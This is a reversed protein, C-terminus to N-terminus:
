DTQDFGSLRLSGQHLRAHRGESLFLSCGTKGKFEEPPKGSYNPLTFDPAKGGIKLESSM